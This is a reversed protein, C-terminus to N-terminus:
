ESVKERRILNAYYSHFIYEVFHFCYAYFIKLNEYFLSWNYRINQILIIFKSHLLYQFSFKLKSVHRVTDKLQIYCDEVLVERNM